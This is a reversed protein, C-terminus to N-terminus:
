QSMTDKFEKIFPTKYPDIGKALAMYTAAYYGTLIINFVETMNTADKTIHCVEFGRKQYLDRMVNFRKGIRQHDYSSSIFMFAFRDRENIMDDTVFSQLENHNAEPIQNVFSPVKAGENIAAKILYAVPYFFSSSYIVPYKGKLKEALEKGEADANELSVLAVKEKLVRLKETEGMLTLLGILQHGISFRPELNSEPLEIYPAGVGKGKEILLGGRSLIAM